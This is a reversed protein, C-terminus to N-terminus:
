WDLRTLCQVLASLPQKVKSRMAETDCTQKQLPMRRYHVLVVHQPLAPLGPLCEHMGAPMASCLEICRQPMLTVAQSPSSEAAPLLLPLRIVGPQSQLLLAMEPM